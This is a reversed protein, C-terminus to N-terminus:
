YILESPDPLLETAARWDGNVAANWGVRTDAHTMLYEHREDKDMIEEWVERCKKDEYAIYREEDLVPCDALTECAGRAIRIGQTDSEHIAIWAVWGVAWHTECVVRRTDTDGHNGGIGLLSCMADFNANELPGSDRTRGVGASYWGYWDSGAYHDPRTWKKVEHMTIGM